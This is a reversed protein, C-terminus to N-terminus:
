KAVQSVGAVEALIQEVVAIRDEAELIPRGVVLYDSGNRVAERPSAVRAQDGASEDDPRIGPTVVIFDA